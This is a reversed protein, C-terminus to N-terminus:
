SSAGLYAALRLVDAFVGGATVEPGAGPGRVILPQRDYRATTFALINDTGGLAAFSHDQAYGQLSVAAQGSEDIRGVYRLALGRERAADLRQGFTADHARMGELFRTVDSEARLAPPVLNEVPIDDLELSRGMERALIILKRAVDTGSLDERPDPETYGAERAERLISSFPRRGDFRNFLYSLTGSLVGELRDVRDGTQILDRLTTIIPLGAGVTAEYLYHAGSRRSEDRLRRYFADSASNAKKNPTVVHIGRALWDPYREVVEDSSTCDIIVSHPLRDAAVHRTLTDLDTPIGRSELLESWEALDLGREDLLMRSSRAIARVRLDINFRERLRSAAAGLQEALTRGVVGVGIMGVSLTQDSLYFGSHVARLARTADSQDIVATINRESAGQAVARVNIGANGLAGFFRGSVGPTDAMGDGVAALITCPGVVEVRQIRGHHLEAFFAQEIAGRALPVQEMPVALCISHESSAQSIMSVSVGVRSLSGFLREAIGPVGIMGTGEVNILAMGDATSFGRVAGGSSPRQSAEIRTGPADPARSNRIVIPIGGGVAPSMTDPHLVSAGFYALEMAETYSLRELVFAEPVMRPDASMVGDVDTWITITEARLLAGFISATFDSGNRRLTTPRGEPTSAVFGTIVVLPEPHRGRWEELRVASPEWHVNPGTDSQEVVLVDRADMWAAPVGASELYAALLRASWLEGYGSALDLTQEPVGRVLEVSRLLQRLEEVGTAVATRPADRTAAPLLEEIAAGYRAGLADLAVDWSGDGRGARSLLDLLTDTVGSMASVVIAKRSAGDGGVLRAANRFGEADAVSTGGFKHVVWPDSSARTM